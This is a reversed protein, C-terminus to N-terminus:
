NIWVGQMNAKFNTWSMTFVGDNTGDFATQDAKDVGWPNRVTVSLPRGAADRTVGVVTYSHNAVMGATVGTTKTATVVLSQNRIATEIATFQADSVGGEYRVTTRGTIATMADHPWTAATSGRMQEYARQYLIVWSEGDAQSKPENVKDVTGDFQVRVNVWGTGAKFMRVDYSTGGAFTINGGLNVCQSAASALSALLSCAPRGAQAVDSATTGNIVTVYPNWDTGSENLNVAELLSGADMWDDGAEGFLYDTGAEGYLRDNGNGGRLVDNGDGGRITDNGASGLINDNGDGGDITDDALGGTIKDNGGSTREAAVASTADKTGGYITNKGLGGTITDNGAGGDIRWSVNQYPTSGSTVPGSDVSVTDDGGLASINVQRVGTLRIPQQVSGKGSALSGDYVDVVNTGVERVFIKDAASSGTVSLEGAGTVTGVTVSLLSRDDLIDLAPRFPSNTKRSM